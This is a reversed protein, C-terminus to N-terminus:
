LWAEGRHHVHQLSELTSRHHRQIVNGADLLGVVPLDAAAMVISIFAKKKKKVLSRYIYKKYLKM